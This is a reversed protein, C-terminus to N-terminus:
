LCADQAPFVGVCAAVRGAPPLWKRGRGQFHVCRLAKQHNENLKKAATDRTRQSPLHVDVRASQSERHGAKGRPTDEPSPQTAKECYDDSRAGIWISACNEENRTDSRCGSALVWLFGPSVWVDAGRRRGM